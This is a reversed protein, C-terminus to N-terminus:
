VPGRGEPLACLAGVVRKTVSARIKRRPANGVYEPHSNLADEIAGEVVRWLAGYRPDSRHRPPPLARPARM